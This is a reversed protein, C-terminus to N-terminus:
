EGQRSLILFLLQNVNSRVIPKKHINSPNTISPKQVNSEFGDILKYCFYPASGAGALAAKGTKLV